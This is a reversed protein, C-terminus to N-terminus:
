HSESNEETSNNRPLVDLKIIPTPLEKGDPGGIPQIARGYVRDMTDRYFNFDGARAKKVANAHMELELADATTNNMKALYELAERYITAFNKRGKPRGNPNGTQGKKFPKLNAEKVTKKETKSM